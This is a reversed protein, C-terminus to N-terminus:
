RDVVRQAHGISEPVKLRLIRFYLASVFSAVSGCGPNVMAVFNRFTELGSNIEPRDYKIVESVGIGKEEM